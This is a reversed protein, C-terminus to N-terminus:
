FYGSIKDIESSPFSGDRANEYKDTYKCNFLHVVPTTKDYDIYIADIGRDHGGQCGNSQLFSNDTISDIIEDEQLDAERGIALIYFADSPKGFSFDNKIRNVKTKVLSFDQLNLM